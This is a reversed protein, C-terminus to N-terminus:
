RGPWDPVSVTATGGSVTIPTFFGTPLHPFEQQLPAIGPASFLAEIAVEGSNDTFTLDLTVNPDHGSVTFGTGAVSAPLQADDLTFSTIQLQTAFLDLLAAASTSGLTAQDLVLTGGQRAGSLVTLLEQLIASTEPM